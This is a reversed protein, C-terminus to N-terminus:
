IEFVKKIFKKAEDYIKDDDNYIEFVSEVWKNGHSEIEPILREIEGCELIYINNSCLFSEIENYSNTCKGPPLIHKGAMKFTEFVNVNKLIEKIKKANEESIFKEDNFIANIEKKIQEQSKLLSYSNNTYEDIFERHAVSIRDYLNSEIADLLQQLREKSNILDIDAIIKYNIKLRKLLPAIIKFQDKGGVACFLTKQSINKDILELIYSYFKCDSENECLVVNDYFLGNLINTYKLNRDNAIKAIDNKDLMHLYTDNENREVKIIKIRESNNELVGRIIDINHTAVFCQRGESLEVINKGLIRAQPPHLFTEPEDILCISNENVILSALIAVASRIGDGQEHLNELSELKLKADRIKQNVTYKIEEKTGIKYKKGYTDEGFEFVDIAKGFANLLKENIKNIKMENKSLVDMIWLNYNENYTIYNYNISNTIKLRNETSLFTYFIKLFNRKSIYGHNLDFNYTDGDDLTLHYLGNEFKLLKSKILRRKLLKNFNKSLYEIKNIIVNKKTNSHVDNLMDLRIDKLIRSKGVNNSGVFLVFDDPELKLEEKNNLIIKDISVNTPVCRFHKNDTLKKIKNKINKENVSM